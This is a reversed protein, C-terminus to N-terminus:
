ASLAHGKGSPPPPPKLSAINHQQMAEELAELHKWCKSVLHGEKGYSSYPDGTFKKTKSFSEGSKSPKGEPTSEQAYSKHSSKSSSENCATNSKPKPKRKPKGTSTQTVLAQNKQGTLSNLQSLKAQERTLRDYFVEFTPMTFRPGLSDM